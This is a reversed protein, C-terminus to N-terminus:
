KTFLLGSSYYQHKGEILRQSPRTCALDDLVELYARFQKNEEMLLSIELTLDSVKAKFHSIETELRSNEARLHDQDKLQSEVRNMRDELISIRKGTEKHREDCCKEAAEQSEKDKAEGRRRKVLRPPNGTAVMM